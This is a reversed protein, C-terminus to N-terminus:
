REAISPLDKTMALAAHRDLTALAVSSQQAAWFIPCGAIVIGSFVAPNSAEM